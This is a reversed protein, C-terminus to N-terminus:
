VRWRRLSGRDRELDHRSLLGLLRDGELGLAMETVWADLM